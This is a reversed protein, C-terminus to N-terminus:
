SLLGQLEHLLNVTILQPSVNSAVREKALEVVEIARSAGAAADHAARRVSARTREHLLVTLADLADAFSGRARSAGQSWAADYHLARKPVADLLRQAIELAQAWAAGSLL